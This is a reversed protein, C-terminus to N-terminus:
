CKWDPHVYIYMRSYLFEILIKMRREIIGNRVLIVLCPFTCLGLFQFLMFVLGLRSSFVIKLYVWIIILFIKWENSRSQKWIEFRKNDFCDKRMELKLIKLKSIRYSWYVNQDKWVCLYDFVWWATLVFSKQM